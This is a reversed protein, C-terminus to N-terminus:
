KNSGPNAPPFEACHEPDAQQLLITIVESLEDLLAQEVPYNNRKVFVSLRLLSARM